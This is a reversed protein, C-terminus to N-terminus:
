FTTQAVMSTGTRLQVRFVHWCNLTPFLHAIGSTGSNSRKGHRRRSKGESTLWIRLCDFQMNTERAKLPGLLSRARTIKEQYPPLKDTVVAFNPFEENEYERFGKVKVYIQGFSKLSTMFEQVNTIKNKTTQELKLALKGLASKDGPQEYYAIWTRGQYGNDLVFSIELQERLNGEDDKWQSVVKKIETLRATFIDGEECEPPPITRKV